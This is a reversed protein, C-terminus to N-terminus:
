KGVGKLYNLSVVFHILTLIVWFLYLGLNTIEKLILYPVLYNVVMVALFWVLFTRSRM